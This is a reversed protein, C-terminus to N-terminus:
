PVEISYDIIMPKIDKGLFQKVISPVVVTIKNYLDLKNDEIPLLIGIDNTSGYIYGGISNLVKSIYNMQLEKLINNSPHLVIAIPILEELSVIYEFSIASYAIGSGLDLIYNIIRAGLTKAEEISMFIITLDKIFNRM